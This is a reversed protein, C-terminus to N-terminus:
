ARQAPRTYIDLLASATAFVIPGLFLGIMGFAAIGGLVSIFVSLGSLSSRGTMLAPRLINDLTGAIGGCLILLLVGKGISGTFLLWIAVPLWVPWAGIVPLLALFSMVLAWFIPEGIGVLAFAAGCVTGQIIAIMLSISVSAYILQQSESLMRERLSEEFPLLRRLMAMVSAGDRLLFFLASVAIFLDLIVRLVNALIGGLSGALFTAVNRAADQLLSSLEVDRAGLRQALSAWVRAAWDLRGSAALEQFSQAAQLGERIFYFSLLGGPVVLGLTVGITSVLAARTAGLRVALRNHLPHILIALIAAWGLPVLFPSIIQFVLWILLTVAAYFFAASLREIKGTETVLQETGGVEGDNGATAAKLRL